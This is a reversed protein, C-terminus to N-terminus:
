KQIEITVRRSKALNEAPETDGRHEASLTVNSAASGLGTTLAAQVAAVRQESLTQNLDKNGTVDAHGVLAVKTGGPLAKLIAVAKDVKANAAADLDSKGSAFYVTLDEAVADGAANKQGPVTFGPPLLVHDIVYVIGNAAPAGPVIVVGSTGSADAVTSASADTKVTLASGDVSPYSGTILDKQELRGAVVHYRLVKALAEKNEPLLLTDLVGAPLAAFAGDSPAFVTFPGIGHLTSTLGAATIAAGFKALNIDAGAADVVTAPGAATPVTTPPVSAPVETTPTASAAPATTPEVSTPATTTDPAATTESVVTTPDIAAAVTTEAAAAVTTDTAASATTSAAVVTKNTDNFSFAAVIAPILALLVLPWWSRKRTVRVKEIVRRTTTTTATLKSASESVANATQVSNQRAQGPEKSKEQAM